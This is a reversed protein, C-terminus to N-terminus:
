YYKLNELNIASFIQYTGKIQAWISTPIKYRLYITKPITKDDAEQKNNIIYNKNYVFTYGKTSRIESLIPMRNSRRQEALKIMINYSQYFENDQLFKVSPYMGGRLYAKKIERIITHENDPIAGTYLVEGTDTIVDEYNHKEKKVDYYENNIKIYNRYFYDFLLMSYNKLVTDSVDIGSTYKMTQWVPWKKQEFKFFKNLNDVKIGTGM